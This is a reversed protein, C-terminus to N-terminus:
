GVATDVMGPAKTGAAARCATTGDKTGGCRPPEVVTGDVVTGDVDSGGLVSVGLVSVGLVSVGADGV